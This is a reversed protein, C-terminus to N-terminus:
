PDAGAAVGDGLAAERRKFSTDPSRGAERLALESLPKELDKPDPVSLRRRAFSEGKVSSGGEEGAAKKPFSGSPSSNIDDHTVEETQFQIVYQDDTRKEKFSSSDREDSPSAAGGPTTPALQRPEDGADRHADDAAQDAAVRNQEQESRLGDSRTRRPSQSRANESQLGTKARGDCLLRLSNSLRCRSM